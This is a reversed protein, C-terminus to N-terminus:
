LVGFRMCMHVTCSLMFSTGLQLESNISEVSSHSSFRMRQFSSTCLMTLTGSYLTPTWKTSCRFTPFTNVKLTHGLRSLIWRESKSCRLSSMERICVCDCSMLTVKREGYGVGEEVGEEQGEEEEDGERM